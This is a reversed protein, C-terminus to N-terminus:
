GVGLGIFVVVGITVGGGGGGGGCLGGLSLLLNSIISYFVKTIKKM